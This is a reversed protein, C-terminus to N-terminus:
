LQDTLCEQRVSHAQRCDIDVFLVVIIFRNMMMESKVSM